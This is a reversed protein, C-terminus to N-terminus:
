ARGVRSDLWDGVYPWVHLPARSGCVLDVHGWHGAGDRVDFKRYTKDRSTSSIYAPYCDKPTCLGDRDATLILKPIQLRAFEAAYDIGGRRGVFEGTAAWEVMQRLVAFGTRDMGKLMRERLISSEITGPYWLGLPFRSFLTHDLVREGAMLLRGVLDVPIYPVSRHLLPDAVVGAIGYAQSVLRFLPQGVGFHFVGAFTVLGALREALVPAAAYTIAGGLSHGMLFVKPHGSVQAAVALAMATDEEVYSEFATPYTSGEHRSRGHGRLELNFVDFGRDALYNAFSRQSLHWSYRNQGFGHILLVAGRSQAVDASRKRVLVVPGDTLPVPIIEKHFRGTRGRDIVQEVISTQYRPQV